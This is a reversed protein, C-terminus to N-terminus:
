PVPVLIADILARTTAEDTVFYTLPQIFEKTVDEGTSLGVQFGAGTDVADIDRLNTLAQMGRLLGYVEFINDSSRDLNEVIAFTLGANLRLMNEKQAYSSDLVTFNVIHNYGVSTLNPVLEYSPKHTRRFGEFEFAPLAQKMVIDTVRNVDTVDRTITDIDALNGIILREATGTLLGNGNEDCNQNIAGVTIGSCLTM